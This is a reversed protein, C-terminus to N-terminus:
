ADMMAVAGAVDAAVLRGVLLMKLAPSVFRGSDEDADDDDENSTMSEPLKM